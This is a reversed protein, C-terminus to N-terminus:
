AGLARLLPLVQQQWIDATLPGVHKFRVVGAKDIIFTEPVGYVGYDIGVRGDRDSATAAYPDGLRLLWEQANRPDDKYNLGVLHVGGERAAQMLVPHEERCPACWSAWVNLLWVKGLLKVPSLFRESALLRPLTFAPAPKGIFPSPVERPNLTLGVGLLTALVVFGALPVWGRIQFANGALLM